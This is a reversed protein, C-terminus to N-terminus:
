QRPRKARSAACPANVGAGGNPKKRKCLDEATRAKFARMRPASGLSVRSDRGNANACAKRPKLPASRAQPLLVAAQYPALAILIVFVVQIKSQFGSSVVKQFVLPFHIARRLRTQDITASCMPKEIQSIHLM